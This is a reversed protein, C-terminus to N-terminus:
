CSDSKFPEFSQPLSHSVRSPEVILSKTCNVFRVTSGALWGKASITGNVYPADSVPGIEAPASPVSSAEVQVAPAGWPVRALLNVRWPALLARQKYM